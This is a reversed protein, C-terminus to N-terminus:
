RYWQFASVMSEKIENMFQVAKTTDVVMNPGANEPGFCWIKVTDEKEWEFEEMLRKGRTKPDM